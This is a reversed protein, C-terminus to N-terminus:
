AVSKRGCAPRRAGRACADCTSGPLPHVKLSGRWHNESWHHVVPGVNIMEAPPVTAESAVGEMMRALAGMDGWRKWRTCLTKAPVCEKPADSWWLSNRNIFVIGRPVRGRERNAHLGTGPLPDDVQPKGHSKPVFPRLRARPDESVLLSQERRPGGLEPTQVM